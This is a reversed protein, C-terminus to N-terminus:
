RVMLALQPRTLIGAHADKVAGDPGIIVTTPLTDVGYAAVTARDAVLV